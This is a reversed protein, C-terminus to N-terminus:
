EDEGRRAKIRGQEDLKFTVLRSIDAYVVRYKLTRAEGEEDRAVLTLTRVPGLREYFEAMEALWPKMENWYDPSFWEAQWATTALRATSLLELVRHTMAPDTDAIPRLRPVQLTADAQQVVFKAISDTPAAYSNCLVVVALRREPVRLYTASFGATQGDHQLSPKSLIKETDWGYGYPAHTGDNLQVPRRALLATAPSMLRPSLQEREWRAMDAVTTAIDGLGRGTNPQIPDRNELNAGIRRYGAARGPLVLNPLASRTSTMGLPKFIRREMFEAYSLGGVREIVRALLWYNTNSYQWKEGPKSEIPLAFLRRSFEEDTPTERYVGYGFAEELDPLGSTHTLLRHLTVGGWDPPLDTLYRGVPADLEVGGNEVLLLIAYATFQKSISGIEFVQKANVKVQLEVNAYGRVRTDVLKGDRIVGVVMGPIGYVRQSQDAFRDIQDANAPGGLITLLLFAAVAVGIKAMMKPFWRVAQEPRRRARDM